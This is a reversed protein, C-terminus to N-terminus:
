CQLCANWCKKVTNEKSHLLAAEREIKERMNHVQRLISSFDIRRVGELVIDEYHVPFQYCLFLTIPLDANGGGKAHIKSYSLDAYRFAHYWTTATSSIVHIDVQFLRAAANLCVEDGWTRSKEINTVFTKFEEVDEFLPIYEEKKELIYHAVLTRIASSHCSDGLLQHAISAFLCNGDPSQPEKKVNLSQLRAELRQLNEAIEKQREKERKIEEENIGFENLGNANSSPVVSKTRQKLAEIVRSPVEGQRVDKSAYKEKCVECTRNGELDRFSSREKNCRSCFWQKETKCNYCRDADRTGIFCCKQCFWLVHPAGDTCQAENSLICNKKCTQCVAAQLPLKFSCLNCKEDVDIGTNTFTCRPCNWSTLCPALSERSKRMSAIQSPVYVDRSDDSLDPITKSLKELKEILERSKQFRYPNSIQPAVLDFFVSRFCRCCIISFKTLQVRCVASHNCVACLPTGEKIEQPPLATEEKFRGRFLSELSKM